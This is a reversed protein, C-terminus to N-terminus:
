IACILFPVGTRIERFISCVLEQLVTGCFLGPMVLIIHDVSSKLAMAVSLLTTSFYRLVLYSTMAIILTNISFQSLCGHQLMGSAEESFEQLFVVLNDLIKQFNM